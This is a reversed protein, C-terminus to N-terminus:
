KRYEKEHSALNGTQWAIQNQLGKEIPTKPQYNLLEKAKTYDAQTDKVDGRESPLFKVKAKKGVLKEILEIVEILV